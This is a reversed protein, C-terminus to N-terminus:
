TESRFTLGIEHLAASLITISKPGFGHLELLQQPTYSALQDLRTVGISDLARLAPVSIKPLSHENLQGPEATFGNGSLPRM